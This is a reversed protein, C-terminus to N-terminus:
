MATLTFHYHPTQRGVLCLGNKNESPLGLPKGDKTKKKM